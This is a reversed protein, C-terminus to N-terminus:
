ALDRGVEKRGCKCCTDVAVSEGSPDPGVLERHWDHECEKVPESRAAEACKAHDALWESAYRELHGRDVQCDNDNEWMAEAGCSCKLHIRM